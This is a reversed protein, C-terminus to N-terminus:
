KSYDPLKNRRFESCIIAAAVSVNLSESQNHTNSFNPILLNSDIYKNLSQSIGHAENGLIIVAPTKLVTTYINEGDLASGYITFLGPQRISALFEPLSTYSVHVRFIAGMTAQVVKPNYCDVSNDSCIIQRIDFWDALRIITGLNGPDRISDLLLILEGCESIKPPHNLPKELILLVGQPNKLVSIKYFDSPNLEISPIGEPILKTKIHKKNESTYLLMRISKIHATLAENVLKIGEAFYVNEQIRKKKQHLSRIYKIQTRTIM